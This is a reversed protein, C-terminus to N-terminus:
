EAASMRNRLWLYALHRRRAMLWARANGVAVDQRSLLEPHNQRLWRHFGAAQASQQRLLTVSWQSASVRFGALSGPEAALDGALLIRAYTQEDILYPHEADWWGVQELTRRRILVCAPEGFINTGRLVARRIAVRGDVVGSLGALGRDRVVPTGRADIVDRPSAVMTVAPSADMVAVQRELSEPYLIDDGCVLKLYEGKAAMSARNWNREAGGGAPTTLLTIRPDDYRRLIELTSDTSSHDAVILEFDRFTQALISDITAAIYEANNYAPVVVSVRATM